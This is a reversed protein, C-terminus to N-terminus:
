INTEHQKDGHTVHAYVIKLLQNVHEDDLSYYVKTGEKRRAVLKADKLVKLQHSILSQSVGVENQIEYVCREQDLLCYMILLRTYDSAVNLVKEMKEITKENPIKGM